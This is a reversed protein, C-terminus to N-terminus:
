PTSGIQLTSCTAMDPYRRVRRLPLSRFQTTCSGLAIVDQHRLDLAHPLGVHLDVSSVFDPLLEPAFAGPHCATLPRGIMGMPSFEAVRSLWQREIDAEVPSVYRNCMRVSYGAPRAASELLFTSFHPPTPCLSYRDLAGPWNISHDRPVTSQAM